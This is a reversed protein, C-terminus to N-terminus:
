GQVVKTDGPYKIDIQNDAITANPKMGTLTITTRADKEIIYYQVPLWTTHSVWIMMSQVGDSKDKPDLQIQTTPQGAVETDGLITVNYRDRLQAAADNYALGLFNLSRNKNASAKRTTVFLQKLRPQYIMVKDGVVSVTEPIPATYQLMVRESGAQAAKYFLTGTSKETVGLTRDIKEQAISAQLSKLSRGAQEMKALVPSMVQVPAGAAAANPAVFAAGTGLVVAASLTFSILSRKM